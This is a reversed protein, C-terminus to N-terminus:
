QAKQNEELWEARTTKLNQKWNRSPAQAKQSGKKTTKLTYQKYFNEKWHQQKFLVMTRPDALWTACYNAWHSPEDKSIKTQSKISGKAKIQMSEKKKRRLFQEDKSYENEKKKDRLM